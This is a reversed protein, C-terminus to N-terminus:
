DERKLRKKAYGIVGEPILLVIVIFIVGVPIYWFGEFGSIGATYTSLVDRILLVIVTGIIPGILTGGGGVYTWQIVGTSLAIAFYEPHVFRSTLSFLCGSLSSFLGCIGFMLLKFRSVNYGIFNVRSENEKIAKLVQGFPSNVIRQFVIFSIIFIVLM